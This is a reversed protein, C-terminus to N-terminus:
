RSKTVDRFTAVKCEENNFILNTLKLVLKQPEPDKKIDVRFKSLEKSKSVKKMLTVFSLAGSDPEEEDGSESESEDSESNNEFDRTKLLFKRNEEIDLLAKKDRNM